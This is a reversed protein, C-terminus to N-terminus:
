TSMVWKVAGSYDMQCVEMWSIMPDILQLKLCQSSIDGSSLECDILLKYIPDQDTITEPEDVSSLLRLLPARGKLKRSTTLATEVESVQIKSIKHEKTDIDQINFLDM